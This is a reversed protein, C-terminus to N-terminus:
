GGLVAEFRVAAEAQTGPLLHSYTRLVTAPDDGLRAAVVHVPVGALLLLTAHTHRLDHIRTRPVGARAELRHLVELARKESLPAGTAQTTFILGHDRWAPGAKLREELQQTRQRALAALATEGLAVTRRGRESKPVKFVFGGGPLDDITQRVALERRSADLADWTLARLEGLRLGTTVAVAFFPQMRHGANEELLRRVQEGSLVTPQYKTAKPPKAAEAVNRAVLNWRFAQRLAARLTTAIHRVNAASQGAALLDAYMQQVRAGTLQRLQVKGLHATLHRAKDAYFATTSREVDHAKVDRLWRTLFGGVTERGPELSIGARVELIAATLKEQAERKRTAYVYRTRGQADKYTGQYRGDARKTLGGQGKDRRQRSPM